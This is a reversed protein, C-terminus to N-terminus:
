LMGRRKLETYRDVVARAAADPHVDLVLVGAGRMTALAETRATLLEEAAAREYAQDLREPRASALAELEPNRLTVALPLHRPRLTASQAM